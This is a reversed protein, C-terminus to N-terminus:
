NIIRPDSDGQADLAPNLIGADPPWAANHWLLRSASYAILRSFRFRFRDDAPGGGTALDGGEWDDVEPFDGVAITNCVAIGTEGSSLVTDTENIYLIGDYYVKHNTGNSELRLIKGDTYVSTIDINDGLVEFSYSGGGYEMLAKLAIYYAGSEYFITAFYFTSLTSDYRTIVFISGYALDPKTCTNPLYVRAQSYQNDNLASDRYAGGIFFGGTSSRCKNSVVKLNNDFYGDYTSGAPVSILTWNIPNLPDENDRNFDDSYSM